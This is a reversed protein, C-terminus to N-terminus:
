SNNRLALLSHHIHGSLILDHFRYYGHAIVVTCFWNVAYLNHVHRWLRLGGYSKDAIDNRDKDDVPRGQKDCVCCLGVVWVM